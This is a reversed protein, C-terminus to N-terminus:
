FEEYKRLGKEQNWVPVYRAALRELTEMHEKSSAEYNRFELGLTDYKIKALGHYPLLAFYYLHKLASLMRSIAEIEDTSDNVGKVCPTRVIIPIGSEDLRKLNDMALSSDAHIHNRYINQSLGKIDYMILDLYPLLRELKDYSYFGSTELNTHIGENKLRQLLAECFDAQLVPEGGSLTVGGGSEEYYIRDELVQQLVEELDEERGTIVLANSYCEKACLGCATCKNRDYHHTKGPTTENNTHAGMSCLNVCNGCGKCRDKYYQLEPRM